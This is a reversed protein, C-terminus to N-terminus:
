SPPVQTAGDRGTRPAHISIALCAHLAWLLDPDRGTRPAHISIGFFRMTSRTFFTADHGATEVRYKLESATM